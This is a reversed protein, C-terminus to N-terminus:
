ANELERLEEERRHEQLDLWAKCLEIVFSPSVMRHFADHRRYLDNHGHMIAFRYLEARAAMLHVYIASEKRLGVADEPIGDKWARMQALLALEDPTPTISM